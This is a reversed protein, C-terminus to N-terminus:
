MELIVITRLLISLKFVQIGGALNPKTKKSSTSEEPHLARAQIQEPEPPISNSLSEGQPKSIESHRERNPNSPM